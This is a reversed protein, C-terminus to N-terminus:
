FRYYIVLVITLAYLALTLLFPKDRLMSDTPSEADSKKGTIWLFRVIGVAVFPITFALRRTGFFSLAHQSQTYAAYTGTTLVALTVLLRRLVDPRYRELVIRQSKRKDDSTRLEHARKGFGLLSALLLTCALLWGSAAVPIAFAGALVRLLFGFAICGVDVFPIRKLWLSYAINLVLYTAEVVALMPSLVGGVALATTAFLAAAIRAVGVPLAGSAIPRHRKLPHARDREIDLIDNILYVASSLLCFCGVAIIARVAATPDDIRRSFVLPAAVFLNKIWQHPRCAKLLPVVM